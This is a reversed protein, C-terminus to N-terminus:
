PAIQRLRVGTEPKFDVTGKLILNKSLKWFGNFDVTGGLLKNLTTQAFDIFFYNRGAARM